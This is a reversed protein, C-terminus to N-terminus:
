SSRTGFGTREAGLVRIVSAGFGWWDAVVSLLSLVGRAM